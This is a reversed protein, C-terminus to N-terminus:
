DEKLKNKLIEDCRNSIGQAVCKQMFRYSDNPTASDGTVKSVMSFTMEWAQEETFGQEIFSDYMIRVNRAGEDCSEKATADKLENLLYERNVELARLDMKIENVTRM